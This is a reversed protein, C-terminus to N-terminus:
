SLFIMRVYTVHAEPQGQHTLMKACYECFYYMEIETQAITVHVGHTQHYLYINEIPATVLM